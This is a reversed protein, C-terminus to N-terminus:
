ACKRGKMIVTAMRLIQVALAVATVIFTVRIMTSGLSTMEAVLERGRSVEINEIGLEFVSLPPGELSAFILM